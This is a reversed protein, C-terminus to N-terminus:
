RPSRPWRSTPPSPAFRQCCGRPTACAAEPGPPGPTAATPHAPRATTPMPSGASRPAAWCPRPPMCRAPPPGPPRPPLTPTPPPWTASRAPRPRPPAPPTTGSRMANPGPSGVAQATSATPDRWRHRLKPLTLDPALKGGSYWVPGGAPTTDAPLAVAYGTIEGPNRVSLRTRVLVGAHQLRAFFDRENAAAAAATSVHRRLTVRAPEPWRKRAAKESEGRSPHRAATRDAPATRRLGYREEAAQCAERVRFYDHWLNPRRGDQRAADGGFPHPRRRPPGRGLPVADDERGRPALGTRHM